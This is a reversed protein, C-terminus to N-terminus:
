NERRIPANKIIDVVEDENDTIYYIEPDEPSITRFRDRLNEKIFTDLLNWYESGVCVVPVKPIKYEQILTVLEFFEDLTGFGGPFFVYAEASFSLIMKRSFFYHFEQQETVYENIFQENPLEINLGVSEGGAEFAGENAAAMIGPGGGTIIAYDLEEAIKKSLARAQQYYKSENACRASGFFSVSKPYRHILKFGEQFEETIRRMREAMSGRIKEVEQRLEVTKHAHSKPLIIEEERKQM